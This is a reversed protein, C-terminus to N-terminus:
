SCFHFILDNGAARSASCHFTVSWNDNERTFMLNYYL